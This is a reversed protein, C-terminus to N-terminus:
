PAITKMQERRMTAGKERHDFSSVHFRRHLDPLDHDASHQSDGAQRQQQERYGSHRDVGQIPGVARDDGRALLSIVQQVDWPAVVAGPGRGSTMLM